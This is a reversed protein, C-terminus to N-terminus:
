VGNQQRTIYEANLASHPPYYHFVVRTQLGSHEVGSSHVSRAAFNYVESRSTFVRNTYLSLRITGLRQM